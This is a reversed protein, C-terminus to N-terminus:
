HRWNHRPHCTNCTHKCGNIEFEDSDMTIQADTTLDITRMAERVRIEAANVYKNEAESGYTKIGYLKVYKAVAPKDFVALKWGSQDPWNGKSVTKWETGNESIEVRYQHIRGNNDGNGSGSKPLYRIADLKESNQLELIIFRDKEPTTYGWRTHWLTSINGDIAKDPTHDPAQANQAHATTQSRDYDRSADDPNEETKGGLQIQFSSHKSHDESEILINVKDEYTPLITVAANNKGEAEITEVLLAPTSYSGKKLSAESAAMGNVVLRSLEAESNVTFNGVARNLQLETIGTCPKQSNGLSDTSNTLSIKFRVADVPSDFTYTYPTVRETKDGIEIAAPIEIWDDDVTGGRSYFLEVQEPLRASTHDEFFYLVAQALRESTAYTFTIDSKTGGSQSFKRNTWYNKNTGGSNNPDHATLGDIIASLTDSQQDKPTNEELTLANAAVNGGITIEEESIRIDATVSMEEGFVESTGNIQATGPTDFITPNFSDWTVPFQVHLRSGDEMIAPRSAPLTPKSGTQVAASYNLLAAIGDIMNITVSIITGNQLTGKVPFSGSKQIDEEKIPSWVVSETRETGDTSRVLVSPPLEPMNGTKVYYYKSITYGTITNGSDPLAPKATTTVSVSASDLGPASATLTFSGTKRTSRVIALVKGGFAKRNDAQYSDHDPSNGNDVGVLEGEGEVTFKIRNTANPIPNGNRDTVDVTIYSLDQGDAILTNRDVRALLASPSETTTVSSRGTTNTIETNSNGDTYAKATLTGDAYPVMWYLYLNEHETPSKGEGEYIQYTYGAATTKKTFTKRGLSIPTDSNKPTFFLEVSPADSYVVVKVQNNNEKYVVDSNWAPLIHLTNVDDNWQSQYLYYSDKPFGATDIIGFYSSKPSPWATVAGSGTGNWPTPEGLYDFGTWVFEGAMYDRTVVTYWADSAVHGWGVRSEDYATRQYDKSSNGRFSYIGRSNIASATESGYMMWNPYNTRYWDLANVNMGGATYNFGVLGNVATLRNGMDKAESWGAKLKNEGITVPRTSDIAVAWDILKQATAPYNTIGGSIGEMVENGLSYMILSPDNYDRKMFSKLDFEAWTMGPTGGNITNGDEIPTNFWTAYDNVNGNKPYLWTDYAEEIILMGKKNCIEMLKRDAPNHTVRIANCGMEKLIEVQRELSRYYSAAGLSGQDHHMCVGKLKMGEGNLYFGTSADFTLYRFGFETDYTDLIQGDKIVQTQLLYLNPNSLTWLDPSTAHITSSIERSTNSDIVISPEEITGISNAIDPEAKPLINHKLTIAAPSAGDNRLTTKVSVTVTGGQETELHPTEIKTGYLDVHVPETITLEVSRYIGSGSYWRSSPIQNESKVAIVNEQDFKIYDTIDFSFPTYGYPHTGLKHGNIYVTANMYVGGFDIRIRKGAAGPVSFVKRYWGTGGPLYGSEAEGSKSYEQTISYDHPITISEWASDDYSPEQANGTDGLHFKWNQDFNQTRTNANYNNLYIFEEASAMQNAVGSSKLKVEYAHAPPPATSILMSTVLSFVIHKKYNKKM